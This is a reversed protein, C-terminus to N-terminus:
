QEGKEDEKVSGNLIGKEKEEIVNNGERNAIKDLLKRKEKENDDEEEGWGGEEGTRANFDKKNYNEKRGRKKRNV